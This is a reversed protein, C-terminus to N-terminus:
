PLPFGSPAHQFANIAGGSELQVIRPNGSSTAGVSKLLTDGCAYHSPYTGGGANVYQSHPSNSTIFAVYAGGTGNPAVAPKSEGGTFCIRTGNVEWAAAPCFSFALALVGAILSGFRPRM